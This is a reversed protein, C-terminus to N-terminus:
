MSTRKVLWEAFSDLEETYTEILEDGCTLLFDIAEKSYDDMAPPKELANVQLRLYHNQEDTQSFLSSLQYDVTQENSNLLISFLPAAWEILGWKKVERYYYSTDNKINGVSLLYIDHMSQCHPLKLSEIIACLAPNNAVVGGDVFCSPCVPPNTLCVPPYYTPAACSARVADAVLINRSDDKKATEQNFFVAKRATTDYSTILCPKLLESLRITGLIKNLADEFERGMYKSGFLPYLSQKQFISPGLTLYFELIQKASFKPHGNDPTLYLATLISGTSTGAVLDFYDGIRAKPNRSYLQVLEELKELVVASVIGKMGGGDISLIATSM